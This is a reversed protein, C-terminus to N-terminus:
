RMEITLNKIKIENFLSQLIKLLDIDAKSASNSKYRTAAEYVLVPKTYGLLNGNVIFNSTQRLLIDGEPLKPIYIFYEVFEELTLGDEKLLKQTLKSMRKVMDLQVSKGDSNISAGKTDENAVSINFNSLGFNKAYKQYDPTPYVIGASNLHEMIMLFVFLLTEGPDNFKLLGIKSEANPLTQIQNLDDKNCHLLIGTENDKCNLVAIFSLSESDKIENRLERFDDRLSELSKTSEFAIGICQIPIDLSRLVLEPSIVIRDKQSKTLIRVSISKEFIDRMDSKNLNSKAEVVAFVSEPFFLKNSDLDKLVPSYFEDYIVIDQQKSQRNNIDVIIGSDISFKKPIYPSLFNRVISNERATGKVGTHDIGKSDNFDIFMKKAASKLYNLM